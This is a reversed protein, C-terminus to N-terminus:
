GFLDIMTVSTWFWPLQLRSQAIQGAIDAGNQLQAALSRQLLHTGNAAQIKGYYFFCKEM